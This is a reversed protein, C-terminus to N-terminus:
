WFIKWSSIGYLMVINITAYYFLLFWIYKIKDKMLILIFAIIIFYYRFEVMRTTVLILVSCLFLPIASGKEFELMFFYYMTLACILIGCINFIINNMFLKVLTNHIFPEYLNYPHVNIFTYFRLLSFMVIFLGLIWIKIDKLKNLIEPFMMFFYIILFIFLNELYFGFEHSNRDGLAIGGNIVIFLGFLMISIIYGITKKVYVEFKTWNFIDIINYDKFYIYLMMFLIWIINNQRVLLSLFAFMSSLYYTQNKLLLFAILIIGMSFIDTYILGYYIFMLPFYVFHITRIIDKNVLFYYVPVVVLFSIVFSVLRIEPITFMHFLKAVMAIFFHYGPIVTLYYVLTFDNNMFKVIQNSHPLEDAYKPQDKLTSACTGLIVFLMVFMIIAKNM